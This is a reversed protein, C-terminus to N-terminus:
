VSSALAAPVPWSQPWAVHAVWAFAQASGRLPEHFLQPDPDDVDNGLARRPSQVRTDHVGAQGADHGLHNSDPALRLSVVNGENTIGTKFVQQRLQRVVEVHYEDAREGFGRVRRVSQAIEKTASPRDGHDAPRVGATVGLVGRTVEVIHQAERILAREAVDQAVARLVPGLADVQRGGLM